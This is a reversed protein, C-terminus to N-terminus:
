RTIAVMKWADRTESIMNRDGAEVPAAKVL